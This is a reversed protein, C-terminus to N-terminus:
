VTECSEKEIFLAAEQRTFFQGMRVFGSVISSKIEIVKGKLNRQIVWQEPLGDFLHLPAPRGDQFRSIEVHGTTSDQFAPVFHAQVNGESVGGTGAYQCNEDILRPAQQVHSM